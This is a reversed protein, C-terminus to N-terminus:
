GGASAASGRAAATRSPRFRSSRTSVPNALASRELDFCANPGFLEGNLPSLGLQAANAGDGFLRFTQKLGEWLDHHPDDFRSAEARDRLRAISYWRTYIEQRAAAEARPTLLLKREEAVMLFLLRYVLRLLQRYFGPEDFRRERVARRLQDNDPHALFGTGLGVLAREVIPTAAPANIPACGADAM